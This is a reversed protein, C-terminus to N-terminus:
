EYCISLILAVIWGIITWGLVLNIIFITNTNSHKKHIAIMTPAFYLTYVFGLFLLCLIFVAEVEDRSIDTSLCLSIFSILCFLIYCIASFIIFAINKNKIEKEDVLWEKCKKCKLANEKVIEGCYPCKKQM